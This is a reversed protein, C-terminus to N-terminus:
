MRPSMVRLFRAFEMVQVNALAQEDDFLRSFSTPEVYKAIEVADFRFAYSEGGGVWTDYFFQMKHTWTNSLLQGFPAFKSATLTNWHRLEYRDCWLCMNKGVAYARYENIHFPPEHHRRPTVKFDYGIMGIEKRVLAIGEKADAVDKFIQKLEEPTPEVRIVDDDDDDEGQDAKKDASEKQKAAKHM